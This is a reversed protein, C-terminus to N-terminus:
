GTKGEQDLSAVLRGLEEGLSFLALSAVKM